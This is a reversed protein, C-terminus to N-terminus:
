NDRALVTATASGNAGGTGDVTIKFAVCAPVPLTDVFRTPTSATAQTPVSTIAGTGDNRYPMQYWDGDAAFRAYYRFEMSTHTGLAISYYIDFQANTLDGPNTISVLDLETTNVDSQTGQAIVNARGYSASM